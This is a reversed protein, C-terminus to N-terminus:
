RHDAVERGPQTAPPTQASTRGPVPVPVLRLSTSPTGVGGRAQSSVLAAVPVPRGRRFRATRMARRTALSDEGWQEAQWAEDIQASGMRSPTPAGELLALAVVLSGSVTVLPSLGALRFADLAAVADGLRALTAPPQPPADRRRGDRFACRLPRAGLRAASGLRGAPARGFARARNPAIISCTARAMPPSARAAFAAADPAIRDIAANALGTLPMARPDLTEGVARWEEAVAEALAADAAGAARPRPHAGAQRRARHRKGARGDRRELLAERSGRADALPAGDRAAGGGDYLALVARDRRRTRHSGTTVPGAILLGLVAGATALMNVGAIMYYRNRALRDEETM